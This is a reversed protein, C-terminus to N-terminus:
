RGISRRLFAEYRIRIIPLYAVWIALMVLGLGAPFPFPFIAFLWGVIGIATMLVAVYAGWSEPRVAYKLLLVGSEFTMTVSGRVINVIPSVSLQGTVGSFELVNDNTTINTGGERKISKALNELAAKGHDGRAVDIKVEGRIIFPFTM